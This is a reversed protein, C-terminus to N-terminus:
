VEETKVAEAAEAVKVTETDDKKASNMSNMDKMSLSIKKTEGNVEIIKAEIEQGINLADSVKNLRMDSIQSIHVLGDVGESLEIFAGFPVIRAVIGKVIDGVKYKEEIGFWPNEANKKYGLSIRNKEKDFDLVYVELKDGIKVIESPHKIKKWSLESIHVLGDVGGIDAFVGFDMLSKVVGTYKSGIEIVNWIEAKKTLRAEELLVKASAVVKKKQKNVDIIRVRITQKLFESLDKVYRDSIQSAPIFLRIGNYIAIAGGNVIDIVKVDLETKKEVAGEFVDWSKLSDVAKKSLLVNGEGDNVRKVFVEIEEGVKLDVQPKFDPDDSYEDIPIIGDSKYGLDVFIETNNYGIIKGKAVTGSRLVVISNEFADKFSMEDEQRNLEEMQQIVEKIISDPTSAGATVGIKKIKKIDVPPLDGPVDIKYTEPCIDRCIEFLKQTNSSNKSGIVIMMDVMGAIEMAEDQRSRTANCITDYTEINSFKQSLLKNIEKWKMRNVTTQAVVCLSKDIQPLNSVEVDSDLIFASNNCWGNIGIVEPHNKDGIIIVQFGAEYKKKVLNHIKKVYPCTADTLLLNKMNIKDYVEPTVGHARIVIHGPIEAKDLDEIVQVGKLALESVVQDNHIIPGFTYLHSDSKGVLSYITNVAKNVGFCFGATKAIIIEM